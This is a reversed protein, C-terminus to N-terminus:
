EDDVYFMDGGLKDAFGALRKLMPRNLVKTMNVKTLEPFELKYKEIDEETSAIHIGVITM